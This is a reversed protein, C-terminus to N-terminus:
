SILNNGGGLLGALVGRPDDSKMLATGILFAYCGAQEYQDLDCRQYFGSEAVMVRDDPWPRLSLGTELDIELTTLNRNNIGILPSSLALARRLEPADHVELLVDMGLSLALDHLSLVEADSLAALILLVCDAGYVRSEYIQYPTLMFDKRLVPLTTAARVDVLDQLSGGFFATDTLVSFCTAGGQQYLTAQTVADAGAQLAGLSPSVRKIEAIVATKKALVKQRLANAFGRVPPASSLKEKLTALPTERERASVERRTNDCIRQLHNM